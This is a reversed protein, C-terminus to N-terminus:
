TEETENQEDWKVMQTKTSPYQKLFDTLANTLATARAYLVENSEGKRKTVTVQISPFTLMM